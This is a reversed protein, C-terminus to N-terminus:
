EGGASRIPEFQEYGTRVGQVLYDFRADSTGDMLERVVLYETSKEAVYLGYCDELLTVQVTLGEEATVLRFSEPLEITAKGNDLRATGRVYTGAEPGELAAYTIVSTPDDPHPQAFFKAGQVVLDGSIGVDDGVDLGGWIVVDDGVDLGGLIAVDDGVDLGGLVTANNMVDLDNQVSANQGVDLDMAVEANNRVALDNGVVADRTVRADNQVVLDNGVAADRAINADNRVVLNNGVDANHIVGLDNGIAVDQVVQANNRVLLDHGIATDNAVGLDHGVSLDGLVGPPVVGVGLSNGIEADGAVGPAPVGVGLSHAVELSGAPGLNPNLGIGVKGEANVELRPSGGAGFNGAPAGPVDDFSLTGAPTSDIVWQGAPGGFPTSDLMINANMGAVAAVHLRRAPAGTGLGVNGGGDIKMRPNLATDDTIVFEGPAEPIAVAFPPDPDMLDPNGLHFYVGDEDIRLRDDLLNTDEIWFAGLSPGVAPINLPGLDDPGARVIGAPLGFVGIVLGSDGPISNVDLRNVGELVDYATLGGFGRPVATAVNGGIPPPITSHGLNVDVNDDIQMRYPMLLADDDLTFTGLSAGVAPQVEGAPIGCSGVALLSSNAISLRCLGLPLALEWVELTGQSGPGMPVSPDGLNFETDGPWGIASWRPLNASVDWLEFDGPVTSTLEWVSGLPTADLYINAGVADVINLRALGIPVGGIGVNGVFQGDGVGAPPVGGGVLLSTGFAASGIPWVGVAVGVGLRNQIQADGAGGPPAIRGVSLSSNIRADGGGGPPAVAGVSLSGLIQADGAGGLPAVTGVSLSNKIHANGEGATPADAGVGLNRAIRASSDVRLNAQIHASGSGPTSTSGVQLAGLTTLGSVNLNGTSSFSPAGGIPPINDDRVRVDTTGADLVVEAVRELRPSFPDSAAGAGLLERYLRYGSRLGFRHLEQLRPDAPWEFEVAWSAGQEGLGVLGNVQLHETGDVFATVVYSYNKGGPLGHEHDMAVARANLDRVLSTPFSSITVDGGLLELEAGLGLIMGSGPLALGSPPEGVDVGVGLLRGITLWSVAPQQDSSFAVFPVSMAMAVLLGCVFWLNTRGEEKYRM